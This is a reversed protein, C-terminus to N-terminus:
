PTVIIYVTKGSELISQYYVGGCDWYRTGGLAIRICRRPLTYYYNHRREIRRVARRTTRRSIGRVERRVQGRSRGFAMAATTTFEQQTVIKVPDLMWAGLAIMIALCSMYINKM